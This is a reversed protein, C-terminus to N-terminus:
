EVEPFIDDVDTSEPVDEPDLDLALLWRDRTSKVIEVGHRLVRRVRWIGGVRAAFDYISLNEEDLADFFEDTDLSRRAM